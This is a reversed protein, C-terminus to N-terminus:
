FGPVIPHGDANTWGEAACLPPSVLVFPLAVFLFSLFRSLVAPMMLSDYSSSGADALTSCGERSTISRRFRALWYSLRLRCQPVLDFMSLCPCGKARKECKRCRFKM